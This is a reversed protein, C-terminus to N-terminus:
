APTLAGALQRRGASTLIWEGRSKRGGPGLRALQAVWGRQRAKGLVRAATVYCASPGGRSPARGELHPWLAWGVDEAHVPGHADVFRLVQLLSVPEYEQGNIGIKM